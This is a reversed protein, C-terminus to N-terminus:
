QLQMTEHQLGLLTCKEAAHQMVRNYEERFSECSQEKGNFHWGTGNEVQWDSVHRVPHFQLEDASIAHALDVFPLVERLNERMVVYILIQRHDPYDQAMESFIRMNNTAREFSDTGRIRRYTEATAADISCRLNLQRLTLLQRILTETLMTANTSITVALGREALLEIVESIWPYLLTEGGILTVHEAHPEIQKVFEKFKHLPVLDKPHRGDPVCMICKQNCPMFLHIHYFYPPNVGTVKRVQLDKTVAAKSAIISPSM